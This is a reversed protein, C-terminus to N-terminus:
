RFRSKYYLNLDERYEAAKAANPAGNIMTTLIPELFRGYKDLAAQDREAFARAVAEQAAPTVLELRGVFVRTTEVPAPKITLPLVKDIFERPVIYLLRSGEEFWSDRWTQVMAQAENQYLGQTILIGELDRALSDVTSTLEPPDLALPAAQGAIETSAPLIGANGPGSPLTGAIRYGVREGRREFLIANPIPQGSRNEVLVKNGIALKAGIPVSCASVGRYFLFKEYQDGASTKVRLPTSTTHRAAYYHNEQQDNPLNATQNSVLTVADWAISGDVHEQYLSLDWLNANPEVRSAHPYWETIVGKAFSVKVSVTEETPAYFYLVPTEMRVTGRLGRKFGADRFHEVFSPLDTWGTLPCWEIARGDPGAISTFTGWEHATLGSYVPGARTTLFVLSPAASALLAGFALCRLRKSTMVYGGM